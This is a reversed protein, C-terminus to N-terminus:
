RKDFAIKCKFFYVKNIGLSGHLRCADYNEESNPKRHAITEEKTNKNQILDKFLINAVSHYEERLFSNIHQIRQFNEREDRKMEWWTGERQLTGYAFVDQQTEDMLDVGSLAVFM